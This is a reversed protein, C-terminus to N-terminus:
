EEPDNLDLVMEGVRRSRFVIILSHFFCGFTSLPHTSHCPPIGWGAGHMVSIGEAQCLGGVQCYLSIPISTARSTTDKRHKRLHGAMVMITHGTQFHFAQNKSSNHM